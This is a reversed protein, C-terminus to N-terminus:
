PHDGKELRNWNADRVEARVFWSGKEVQVGYFSLFLLSNTFSRM